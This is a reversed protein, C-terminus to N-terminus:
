HLDHLGPCIARISASSAVGGKFTTHYAPSQASAPRAALATLGLVAAFMVPSSLPYNM